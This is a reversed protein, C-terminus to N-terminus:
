GRGRGGRAARTASGATKKAARPARTASAKAGGAARGNSAGKETGKETSKATSSRAPAKKATARKRAAGARGNASSKEARAGSEDEYSENEVDRNEDEADRQEDDADVDREDDYAEDDAYAADEGREEEEDEHRRRRGRVVGTVRDGADRVDGADPTVGAIRDQVGQTRSHLRGALGELQREVLAGSAATGVGRLDQRLQDGIEKFQPNKELQTSVLEALARPSLKLRKGAVMTGVAFALKMKKTRGLVYGAGVALGLAARNM